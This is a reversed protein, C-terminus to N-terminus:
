HPFPSRDSSGSCSIHNSTLIIATNVGRTPAPCTQPTTRAQREESGGLRWDPPLRCLDAQMRQQQKQRFIQRRRLSNLTAHSQVIEMCPSKVKKFSSM